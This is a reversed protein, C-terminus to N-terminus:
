RLTSKECFEMQIYMFQIERGNQSSNIKEPTMDVIKPNAKLDSNISQEM